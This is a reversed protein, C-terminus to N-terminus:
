SFPPRAGGEGALQRHFANAEEARRLAGEMLEVQQELLATRREMLLLGEESERQRLLQGLAEVTPKLAFRATLGLIPILVVTFIMAMVALFELDIPEISM